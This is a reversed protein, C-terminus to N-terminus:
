IATPNTWMIEWQHGDLDAFSDYYMWGHDIAEKYRSGGKEIAIKTFEDVTEKTEM